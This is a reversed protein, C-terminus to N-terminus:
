APKGDPLTFSFVSGGGPNPEVWVRGGHREVVLKTVALGIGTGSYRERGHLRKFIEFVKDKFIPDIGIGNDAVSFRWGDDTRVAEVAIVPRRGEARYKIANEILNQFVRGYQIPDVRVKPLAGIRIDAKTDEIQLTLSGLVIDVLKRAEVTEIKLPTSGARSYGLLDNILRKMRTAGDVAFGIFEQAEDDLQGEYRRSLLELYSGVMRLPEQLDHSAVYAFQALEQNSRTLEDTQAQLKDQREAIETAMVRMARALAGTEDGRGAFPALDVDRRGVAIDDAVATLARLPRAILRALLFAVAAGGLLLAAALLVTMWRLSAIRGGDAGARVTALVLYSAPDAPDYAVRRAYAFLSGSPTAVTGTFETDGGGVLGAMAPYDDQLRRSAGGEFAFARGEEPSLLYDGASTALIAAAAPGVTRTVSDFLSNLEVTLVITGTFAGASDFIPESVNVVPRHPVVPVDGARELYFASAYVRGPQLNAADIFYSRRTDTSLADEATRTVTGDPARDVRVLEHGTPGVLSATVYTTRATLLATFLVAARDRLAAATSGDVPDVGDNGAARQLGLLTPTHILFGVDREATDFRLTIRSAALGASYSLAQQDREILIDVAGRYLVVSLVVVVPLGILVAWLAMKAALGLRRPNLAAAIATFPRATPRRLPLAPPASEAVPPSTADMALM